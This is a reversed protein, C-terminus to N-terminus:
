HEPTNGSFNSCPQFGFSEVDISRNLSESTLGDLSVSAIDELFAVSSRFRRFDLISRNFCPIKRYWRITRFNLPRPSFAELQTVHRIFVFEGM